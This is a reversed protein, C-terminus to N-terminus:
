CELKQKIITQLISLDVQKMETASLSVKYPLHIGKLDELLQQRFDDM